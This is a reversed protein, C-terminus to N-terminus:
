TLYDLVALGRRKLTQTVSLLRAFWVGGWESDSGFSKKRRLVAPRVAREAADNTPEVGEVRAFTWLAAEVELAKACTGQTPGHGCAAGEGLYEKVEPRVHERIMRLLWPRQRTGDRVKRWFGSLLGTLTMLGDGAEGAAGGAEAIAKQLM